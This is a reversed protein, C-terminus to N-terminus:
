GYTSLHVKRRNVEESMNTKFTGLMKMAVLINYKIMNGLYTQSFKSVGM